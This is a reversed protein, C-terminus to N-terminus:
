GSPTSKSAGRRQDLDNGEEAGGPFKAMRFSKRIIEVDRFGCFEEARSIGSLRLIGGLFKRVILEVDPLGSNERPFGGRLERYAVLFILSVDAADGSIGLEEAREGFELPGFNRGVNTIGRLEM